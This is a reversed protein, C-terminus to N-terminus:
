ILRIQFSPVVSDADHRPYNKKNDIPMQKGFWVSIDQRKSFILVFDNKKNKGGINPIILSFTFLVIRDDSYLVPTMM